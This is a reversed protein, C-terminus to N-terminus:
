KKAIGDLIGNIFKYSERDGFLKGIEVAEDIVVASPVDEKYLLTYISFRLIARDVFSIRTIDWNKSRKKILEDITDLNDLTGAVLEMSFQKIKNYLKKDIKCQSLLVDYDIKAGGSSDYQYLAQMAYIRGQRRIGFSGFDYSDDEIQKKRKVKIKKKVAKKAAKFEAQGEECASSEANEEESRGGEEIVEEDQM